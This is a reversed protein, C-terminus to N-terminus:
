DGKLDSEYITFELIYENNVLEVDWSDYNYFHHVSDGMYSAPGIWKIVLRDNIYVCVDYSDDFSDFFLRKTLVDDGNNVERGGNYPIKTDTAITSDIEYVSSEKNIYIRLSDNSENKIYSIYKYDGLDDVESLWCGSLLFSVVLIFNFKHGILIYITRM